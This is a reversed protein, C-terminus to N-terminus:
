KYELIMNEGKWTQRFKIKESTVRFPRGPLLAGALTRLQGEYSRKNGEGLGLQGLIFSWMKPDFDWGDDIEVYGEAKWTLVGKEIYKCVRVDTLHMDYRNLGGRANKTDTGAIKYNGTFSRQPRGLDVRFDRSWTLNGVPSLYKKVEKKSLKWDGTQYYYRTLLLSSFEEGKLYSLLLNFYVQDYRIPGTIPLGMLGSVDVKCVPSNEVYGYLNVGGDEGIPDRNLWRGTEPNYFRYGFDILGTEEDRYKTSFRFPNHSAGAGYEAITEGFPSYEYTATKINTGAEAMGIVNGAGDYMPYHQDTGSEVLWLGGIGGAGEMSKGDRWGAVDLGWYYSKALVPNTGSFGVEGIMRMSDYLFLKHSVTGSYVTGSMSLVTKSIRRNEADYGFVLKKPTAGGLIAVASTQVSVLRKEADWTYAWKGDEILNGDADHTITRTGGPTEIETYQNLENAGYATLASDLLSEFRNGINDYNWQYFDSPSGLWPILYYTADDLEGRDNYTYDWYDTDFKSM